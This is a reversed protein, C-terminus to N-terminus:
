ASGFCYVYTGGTLLVRISPPVIDNIYTLRTTIIGRLKCYPVRVSHKERITKEKQNIIEKYM